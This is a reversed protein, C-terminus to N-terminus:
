ALSSAPINASFKLSNESWVVFPTLPAPGFASYRDGRGQHFTQRPLGIYGRDRFSSLLGSPDDVQGPRKRYNPKLPPDFGTLDYDWPNPGSM